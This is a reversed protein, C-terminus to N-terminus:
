WIICSVLLLHVHGLLKSDPSAAIIKLGEDTKLLFRKFYDKWYKSWKFPVIMAEFLALAVEALLSETLSRHNGIERSIKWARDAIERGKKCFQEIVERESCGFVRLYSAISARSLTRAVGEQNRRKFYYNKSKIFLDISNNLAKLADTVSSTIFASVFFAEAECELNESENGVNNFLKAAKRYVEISRENFRLYDKATNISIAAQSYVYAQKKLAKAAKEELKRDLFYNIAPEYKNAAEIWNYDKEEDRARELLVKETEEKTNQTRM